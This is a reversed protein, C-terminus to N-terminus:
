DQTTYTYIYEDIELRFTHVVDEVEFYCFLTRLNLIKLFKLVLILQFEYSLKTSSAHSIKKYFLTYKLCMVSVSIRLKM